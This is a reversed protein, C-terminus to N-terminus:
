YPEDRFLVPQATLLPRERPSIEVHCDVCTLRRDRCQSIPRPCKSLHQLPHNGYLYCDRHNQIECIDEAIEITVQKADKRAPLKPKKVLCKFLEHDLIPVTWNALTAVEGGRYLPIRLPHGCVFRFPECM